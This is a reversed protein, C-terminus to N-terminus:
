VHPLSKRRNVPKTLLEQTETVLIETDIENLSGTKIQTTM